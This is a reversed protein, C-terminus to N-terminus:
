EFDQSCYLNGPKPYPLSGDLAHLLRGGGGPILTARPHSLVLPGLINVAVLQLPYGVVM